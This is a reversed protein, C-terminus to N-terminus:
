ESDKVVWYGDEFKLRQITLTKKSGRLFGRGCHVLWSGTFVLVSVGGCVVLCLWAFQLDKLDLPRYAGSEEEYMIKLDGTIRGADAGDKEWKSILGSQQIRILFHNFPSLFPSDMPMPLGLQLISLSDKMVHFMPRKLREQQKFLFLIKDEALTFAYSTNRLSNRQELFELVPVKVLLKEVSKRNVIEILDDAEYQVCLIKINKQILQDLNEISKVPLETALFTTLHALYLNNIIFAFLFVQMKFALIIIQENNLSVEASMNLFKLLVDSFCEMWKFKGTVMFQMCSSMIAIYGLTLLIAFWVKNEFPVIFYFYPDLRAEVPIMLEWRLTKLPFSIAYNDGSMYSHICIDIEKATTRNLFNVIDYEKLFTLHTFTGNVSKIFNDLINYSYGGFEMKKKRPNFFKMVRPPDNIIPTRIHYGNINGLQTKTNFLVDRTVDEIKFIRFSPFQEYRIIDNKSSRSWLLVDLFGNHWCWQFFTTFNTTESNDIFLGKSSHFTRLVSGVESRTAEEVDCCVIYLMKRQLVKQIGKNFKGTDGKKFVVYPTQTLFDKPFHEFLYQVPSFIAMNEIGETTIIRELLTTIIEQLGVGFSVFLTFATLLKM